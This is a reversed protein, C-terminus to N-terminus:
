MDMGADMGQDGGGQDADAGQSSAEEDSEAGTNTEEATNEGETEGETNNETDQENSDANSSEEGSTESQSPETGNTKNTDQQADVEQSTGDNSPTEGHKASEENSEAPAENNHSQENEANDNGNANDESNANDSSKEGQNSQEASEGFKGNQSEESNQTEGNAANESQTPQEGNPEKPAEGFAQNNIDASSSQDPLQGKPTSEQAQFNGAEQPPNQGCESSSNKGESPNDAPNNDVLKPKAKNLDNYKNHLAERSEGLQKNYNDCWDKNDKARDYELSGPEFQIMREQHEASRRSLYDQEGAMRNDLELAQANWDNIANTKDTGETMKSIDEAESCRINALENPDNFEQPGSVTCDNLPAPDSVCEKIGSSIRGNYKNPDVLNHKYYDKIYNGNENVINGTFHDNAGLEYGSAVRQNPPADCDIRYFSKGYMDGKDYGIEYEGINSDYYKWIDDMDNKSMWYCSGNQDNALPHGSPDRGVYGGPETYDEYSAKGQVRSCGSNFHVLHSKGIM